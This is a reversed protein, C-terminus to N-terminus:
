DSEFKIYDIDDIWSLNELLTDEGISREGMISVFRLNGFEYLYYSISNKEYWGKYNSKILDRDGDELKLTLSKAMEIKKM